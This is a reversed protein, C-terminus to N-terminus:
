QHRGEAQVSIRIPRGSWGGVADAGPKEHIRLRATASLTADSRDDGDLRTASRAEGHFLTRGEGRRRRTEPRVSAIVNDKLLGRCRAADRQAVFGILDARRSPSRARGNERRGLPDDSISTLRPNNIASHAACISAPRSRPEPGHQAPCPEQPTEVRASAASPTSRATGGTASRSELARTVMM